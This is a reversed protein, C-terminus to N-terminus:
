TVGAVTSVPGSLLSAVLALALLAVILAV